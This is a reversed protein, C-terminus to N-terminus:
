MYQNTNVALYSYDRWLEISNLQDSGIIMSILGNPYIKKLYKITDATYSSERSAEYDLISIKESKNESLMLELM